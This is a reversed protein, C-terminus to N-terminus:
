TFLPAAINMGVILRATTCSSTDEHKNDLSCHYHLFDHKNDFSCHYLYIGTQVALMFFIAGSSM